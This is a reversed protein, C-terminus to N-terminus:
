FVRFLFLNEYRKRKSQPVLHRLQSRAVGGGSLGSLTGTDNNVAKPIKGAADVVRSLLPEIQGLKAMTRSAAELCQVVARDGACSFPLHSGNKLMPDYIPNKFEFIIIVCVKKLTQRNSV